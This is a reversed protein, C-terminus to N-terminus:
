RNRASVRRPSGDLQWASGRYLDLCRPPWDGSGRPDPRRRTRRPDLLLTARGATGTRPRPHSRAQASALRLLHRDEAQGLYLTDLRGERHVAHDHSSIARLALGVEPKARRTALITHM